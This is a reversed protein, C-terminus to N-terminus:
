WLWSVFHFLVRRRRVLVGDRFSLHVPTGWVFFLQCWGIVFSFSRGNLALFGFFFEFFIASFFGFLLFVIFIPISTALSRPLLRLSGLFLSQTRVSSLVTLGLLAFFVLTGLLIPLQISLPFPLLFPLGLFALVFFPFFQLDL